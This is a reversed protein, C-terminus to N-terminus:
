CVSRTGDPLYVEIELEPLCPRETAYQYAMGLVHALTSHNLPHPSLCQGASMDWNAM